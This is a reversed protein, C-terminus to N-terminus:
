PSSRPSRAPATPASAVSSRPRTGAAPPRQSADYRAGESGLVLFRRLRTWDDLPTADVEAIAGPRQPYPM